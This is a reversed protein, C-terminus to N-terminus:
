GQSGGKGEPVTGAYHCVTGDGSGAVERLEPADPVEPSRYSGNGNDRLAVGHIPTVRESNGLWVIDQWSSLEPDEGYHTYTNRHYAEFIGDHVGKANDILMDFKYRGAGPDKNHFYLDLYRENQEPVLGYWERSKYIQEYPDIKGSADPKLLALEAMSTGAGRWQLEQSAFLWPKGERHDATPVLELAGASNGCVATVEKANRGLVVQVIGDYGCRMHHYIAPAGKEPQM